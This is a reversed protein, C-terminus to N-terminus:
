RDYFVKNNKLLAIYVITMIFVYIEIKAYKDDKVAFVNMNYTATHIYPLLTIKLWGM